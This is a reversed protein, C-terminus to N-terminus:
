SLYTSKRTSDLANAIDQKTDIFCIDESLLHGQPSSFPKWIILSKETVIEFNCSFDESADDIFFRSITNDGFIGIYSIAREANLPMAKLKEIGALKEVRERWMLWTEMLRGEPCVCQINIQEIAGLNKEVVLACARDWPHEEFYLQSKM